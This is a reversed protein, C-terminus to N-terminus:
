ISLELSAVRRQAIFDDIRDLIKHMRADYQDTLGAAELDEILRDICEGFQDIDTISLGEFETVRIDLSKSLSDNKNLM